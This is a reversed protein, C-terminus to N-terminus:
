KPASGTSPAGPRSYDRLRGLDAPTLACAAGDGRKLLEQEYESARHEADLAAKQNASAADRSMEAMLRAAGLDRHAADRQGRVEDLVAQLRATRSTELSGTFDGLLYSAPAAFAVGVVFGIALVTKV